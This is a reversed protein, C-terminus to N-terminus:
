DFNFVVRDDYMSNKSREEASIGKMTVSLDTQVKAIAEEESDAFIEWDVYAKTYAFKEQVKLEIKVKYTKMKDLYNRNFYLYLM